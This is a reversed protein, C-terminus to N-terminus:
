QAYSHLYLTNINSDKHVLKAYPLTCGGSYSGSYLTGDSVAKVESSSGYIDIGNHFSYISSCWGSKVCTTEGYGQYFGITPIIPWEWSGSPSWPDGGTYNTFDVNSLYNFPNNVSGGEQVIFHLHTGSSNCSAGQIVYAIVDGRKVERLQSNIHLEEIM